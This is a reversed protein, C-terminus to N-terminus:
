RVTVHVNEVVVEKVGPLRAVQSALDLVHDMRAVSGSLTVVGEREEGRLGSFRVDSAILRGIGSNTEEKKELPRPPLLLSRPSSGPEARLNEKRLEPRGMEVLAPLPHRPNSAPLGRSRADRRSPPDDITPLAILGPLKPTEDGAPEVPAITIETRTEFVGPVRRIIQM